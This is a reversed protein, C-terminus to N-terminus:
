HKADFGGSVDDRYDEILIYDGGSRELIVDGIVDVALENIRSAADDAFLGGDRCLKSFPEGGTVGRLPPILREDATRIRQVLSSGDTDAATGAATLTQASETCGETIVTATNDAPITRFPVTANLRDTPARAGDYIKIASTDQTKASETCEETIPDTPWETTAGCEDDSGGSVAGGVEPEDYAVDAADTLLEANRWSAIEIEAASQATFPIDPADYLRMYEDNEAVTGCGDSVSGLLPPAQLRSRIGHRRRVENEASKMLETVCRRAEPSRINTRLDIALHRKASSACLSGCFADRSMTIERYAGDRFLSTGSRQLKEVAEDFVAAVEDCFTRIDAACRSKSPDHDSLNERLLRGLSVGATAAADFYFEKISSRAAACPIIDTLTPPLPTERSLCYDAMWESMYGDLTPHIKRYLSWVTALRGAGDEPSLATGLNIIEYIYLLVYSFDADRLATGSECRERMHLYYAWQSATLQAYQPIYSFYPVHPAEGGHREHSIAADRVFKEYFSAKGPWSHVAIRRMLPGAASYERVVVGGKSGDPDADAERRVFSAGSYRSTRIRKPPASGDRGGPPIRFIPIDAAGDGCTIEATSTDPEAPRRYRHGESEKRMDKENM